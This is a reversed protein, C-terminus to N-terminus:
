VIELTRALTKRVSAMLELPLSGIVKRILLRHIVAIKETKVISSRKLGTQQFGQEIDSVMVWSDRLSEPVRSFIGLIIVDDGKSTLVL